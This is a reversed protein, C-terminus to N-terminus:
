HLEKTSEVAILFADDSDFNRTENLLPSLKDTIMCKRRNLKKEFFEITYIFQKKERDYTRAIIHKNPLHQGESLYRCIIEQDIKNFNNFLSLHKLDELAVVPFINKGVIQIKIRTEKTKKDQLKSILRLTPMSANVKVIAQYYAIMWNKYSSIINYISVRM